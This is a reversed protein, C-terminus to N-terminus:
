DSEPGPGSGPEQSESTILGTSAIRIRGSSGSHALVLELAAVEAESATAAQVRVAIPQTHTLKVQYEPM